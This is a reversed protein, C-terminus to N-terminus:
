KGVTPLYLYYGQVVTLTLTNSPAVAPAPNEVVVPFVGPNATEAPTVLATLRTGDIFTTALPTGNLKVVAGNIFNSGTVTLTFGPGDSLAQNPTSSVITPKPNYVFFSVANSLGGGTANIGNPPNFVAVQGVNAIAMLDKPIVATILTPGQYTTALDTGNWRVVAVDAFNTGQVTLTLNPGGFLTSSPDLSTISPLLYNVATIETWTNNSLDPDIQAGTVTATNEISGGQLATVTITVQAPPASGVTNPLACTLTQGAATCGAPLPLVPVLKNPLLDTVTIGTATTLETLNYVSITYDFTTGATAPDPPGSKVILLDVFPSTNTEYAGLDYQPTRPVGRQDDTIFGLTFGKNIAPSTQQLSHTATGTTSLPDVTLANLLPNTNPQDFPQNFNCTNASELNYNGSIMIPTAPPVFAPLKCDGGTSNNAVISNILYMGAVTAIGAGGGTPATNFAITANYISVGLATNQSANFIGGGNTGATNGSITSNYIDIVGTATNYIGGGNVASNGSITSNEINLYGNVNNYIGGGLGTGTATNGSVAVNLLYCAGNNSIGGGDGAVNGNLISLDRIYVIANQAISFVRSGPGSITTLAAGAGSITLDKPPPPNGGGASVILQGLSIVYNGSPINITNSADGNTNATSIAERLSGPAGDVNSTVAIVAAQVSTGALLFIGVLLWLITPSVTKGSRSM